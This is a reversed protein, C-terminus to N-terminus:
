WNTEGAFYKAASRLIDRETELKTKEAKVQALEARLRAAEQEPTEERTPGPIPTTRPKRVPVGAKKLWATLSGHSIGLDTAIGAITAGDTDRYLAVADRRFEETYNKNSM